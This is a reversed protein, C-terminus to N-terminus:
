LQVWIFGSVGTIATYLIGTNTNFWRDGAYKPSSLTIGEFFLTSATGQTTGDPFEIFAANGFTSTSDLKLGKPINLDDTNDDFNFGLRAELDGDTTAIQIDGVSGKVSILNSITVNGVGTTPSLTIGAGAILSTVSGASGAINVTVNRGDRTVNVGAGTFNIDGVAKLIYNGNFKIGSGGGGVGAMQNIQSLIKNLDNSKLSSLIKTIHKSDLSLKKETLILPYEVDLIESEGDNGKPGPVGQPGEIGPHGREGQPGPIGREGKPGQPGMIGQPGEPGQLGDLGDLGDKGPIGQPGISGQIGDNGRPGAIGQPGIEGREGQQGQPGRPGIEGKPGIPGSEGPDGKEGKEGKPGQIGAPGIPGPPGPLGQKGKNGEDGKEGKLGQPGIAPVSEKIITKEVIETKFITKPQNVIKSPVNNLIVEEFLTKIQSSNGYVKIVKNNDKRIFYHESIGNGIQLKEDYQCSYIEKLLENQFLQGVPRKVKVIKGDMSEYMKVPNFYEKIKTSNGEILYEEGDSSRLFLQAIGSGIKIKKPNTSSEIILYDCGQLLEPHQKVLKLSTKNKGFFM